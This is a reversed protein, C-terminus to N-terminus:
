IDSREMSRQVGDCALPPVKCQELGRGDAISFAIQAGREFLACDVEDGLVITADNTPAVDSRALLGPRRMDAM